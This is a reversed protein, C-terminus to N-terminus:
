KELKNGDFLSVRLVRQGRVLVVQVLHGRVQPLLVGFHAPGLHRAFVHALVDNM